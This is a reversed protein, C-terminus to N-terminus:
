CGGVQDLSCASCPGQRLVLERLRAEMSSAAAVQLRLDLAAGMVARPLVPQLRLDLAARMVARQLLPQWNSGIQLLSAAAVQLSNNHV